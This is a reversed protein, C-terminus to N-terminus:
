ARQSLSLSLVRDPVQFNRAEALSLSWARQYAR